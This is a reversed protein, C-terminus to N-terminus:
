QLPHLVRWTGLGLAPSTLTRWHQGQEAVPIRPTRVPVMSATVFNREPLPIGGEAEM